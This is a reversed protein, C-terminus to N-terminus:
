RIFLLIYFNLQRVITNTELVFISVFYEGYKLPEVALRFELSITNPQRNATLDNFIVLTDNLGLSHHTFARCEYYYKRNLQLVYIYWTHTLM